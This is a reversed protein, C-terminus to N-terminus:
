NGGRRWLEPLGTMTLAAGIDGARDGEGSEASAAARDGVRARGLEIGLASDGM